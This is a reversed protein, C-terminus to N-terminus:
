FIMRQDMPCAIFLFVHMFGTTVVTVTNSTLKAYGRDVM